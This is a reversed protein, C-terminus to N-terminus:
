KGASELVKLQNTRTLVIQPRNRYETVKGSVEVSKGELKDLDGFLNTKESFIIAQFPQNPFAKDLNLRVVREAKSVEVIKGTVIVDANMHQKAEAATVKQVANTKAEQASINLIWVLTACVIWALKKMLSTM